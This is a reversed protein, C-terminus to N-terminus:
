YIYNRLESRINILQQITQFFLKLFLYPKSIISREQSKAPWISQKIKEMTVGMNQNRGEFM